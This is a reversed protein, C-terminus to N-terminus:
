AITELDSAAFGVLPPGLARDGGTSGPMVARGFGASLFVSLIENPANPSTLVHHQVSTLRYNMAKEVGAAPWYGFVENVDYDDLPDTILAVYALKDSDFAFLGESLWPPGSVDD